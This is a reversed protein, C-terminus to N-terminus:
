QRPFDKTKRARVDERQATTRFRNDAASMDKAADCRGKLSTKPQAKHQNNRGTIRATTAEDIGTKHAVDCLIAQAREDFAVWIRGNADTVSDARPHSGMTELHYYDGEDLDAYHESAIGVVEDIMEEANRPGWYCAGDLYSIHGDAVAYCDSVWSASFPACKDDMLRVCVLEARRGEEDFLVRSLITDPITDYYRRWASAAQYKEQGTTILLWEWDRKSYEDAYLIAEPDDSEYDDMIDEGWYLRIQETHGETDPAADGRSAEAIVLNGYPGEYGELFRQISGLTLDDIPWTTASPEDKM